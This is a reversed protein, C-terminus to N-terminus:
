GKVLETLIESNLNTSIAEVMTVLGRVDKMDCLSYPGHCQRLPVGLACALRGSGVLHSSGADTGGGAFMDDQYALAKSEALNRLHRILSRKPVLTKDYNIIMFGSGLKRTNLDARINEKESAVDIAFSIDPQILETTTKGGRTGVEESSTFAFYLDADLKKTNLAKLAEILVYCGVRDDLAKAFVRQNSVAFGNADFTVRDGVKIGLDRVADLSDYGVDVLLLDNVTSLLGKITKTESNIQVMQHHCADDLVGGVKVVNVLGNNLVAKIIFGVEDMHAMFLVKPGTGKKHLIVSGLGDYLVEDAYGKTENLIYDRVEKEDSAIASLNCLNILSEM